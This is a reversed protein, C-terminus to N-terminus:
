LLIQLPNEIVTTLAQLWRAALTGDIPRHDVSVTLRLIKAVTVTGDVVVPEAQAAGVAVIASQPPNIIAAFEEVGFMGLNSITIAGGELDTQQLRGERAKVGFDRMAAAVATVSTSEVGRLVPTVLGKETAIAVSIDVESFRRVADDTWIANMEPVLVHARAIAKILLDNVSVKVESTNIQERLTLLADVQCSARLYFHPANQKSGLLRAAIARRMRSHPIDEYTGGSTTPVPRTIAVPSVPAPSPEPIRPQQEGEQRSAAIAAEIDRRVIRGGPGTGTVTEFALGAEKALRRVLPTAFVRAPAPPAPAATASDPVERRAPAPAAISAPEVVGLEALLADLDSVQEGEATLVAIPSGVEVQAGAPVLTKLLIGASEAPIDVEAKDTEVTAIPDNKGFPSNEAVPWSSLVAHTTSAAIEPMRLLEAM